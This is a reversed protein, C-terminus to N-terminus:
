VVSWALLAVAFAAAAVGAYVWRRGSPKKEQTQKLGLFFLLASAMLIFYGAVAAAQTNM